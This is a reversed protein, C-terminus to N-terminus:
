LIIWLAEIDALMLKRRAMDNGQFDSYNGIILMSDIVGQVKLIKVDTIKISEFTMSSGQTLM